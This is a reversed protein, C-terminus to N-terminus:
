QNEPSYVFYGFDDNTCHFVNSPQENQIPRFNEGTVSVATDSQCNENRSKTMLSTLLKYQRRSITIPQDLVRWQVNETCPPASLSGGYGYYWIGQWLNYPFMRRRPGLPECGNGFEDTRCPSPTFQLDRQRRTKTTEDFSNKKNSSLSMEALYDSM